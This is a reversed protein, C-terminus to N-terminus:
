LLVAQGVSIINVYKFVLNEHSENAGVGLKRRHTNLFLIAIAGTIVDYNAAHCRLIVAIPRRILQMDANKLIGSQM